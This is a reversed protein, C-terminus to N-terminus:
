TESLVGATRFLNLLEAQVDCFTKGAIASRAVIVMQLNPKLKEKNLRYTERLLRRARNRQVAGGVARGTVIGVAGRARKEKGEDSKLEAGEELVYVVALRGVAKRGREYVARFEYGYQLRERKPFTHRGHM